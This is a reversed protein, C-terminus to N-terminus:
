TQVVGPAGAPLFAQTQSQVRKDINTDKKKRILSDAESLLVWTILGNM